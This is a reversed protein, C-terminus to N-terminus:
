EGYLVALVAGVQRDTADVKDAKLAALVEQPTAKPKAAKVKRVGEIVAAPVPKPAGFVGKSHAAMAATQLSSIQTQQAAALAELAAVRDGLAVIKTDAETRAAKEANLAEGQEAVLRSLYEPDNERAFGAPDDVAKILRTMFSAETQLLGAFRLFYSGSKIRFDYEARDGDISFSLGSPVYPMLDRDGYVLKGPVLRLTVVEGDVRFQQVGPSIGQWPRLLDLLRFISKAAVVGLPTASEVSFKVGEQTSLAYVNKGSVVSSSDLTIGRDSLLADIGQQALVPLASAVLLLVMAARASTSVKM